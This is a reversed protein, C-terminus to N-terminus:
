RWLKWIVYDFMKWQLITLLVPGVFLLVQNVGQDSSWIPGRDSMATLIAMVFAGNVFLMVSTVLASFLAHLCDAAM